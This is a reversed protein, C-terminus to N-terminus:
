LRIVKHQHAAEKVALAIELVKIAERVPCISKEQKEILKLFHKMEDVYMQNNDIKEWKIRHWCNEAAVYWEIFHNQYNWRITGTEGIIELSADYTRRIYDLHISGISGKTFKLLIEAIDETDIELHSLHDAMAIVESVEGFLWQMYDIEHIRDLIVGGGLKKQASYTHRYDEWPHWDPLFQGFQARSYIIKGIIEKSLLSHIKMLGPHFRFNCGVLTLLKKKDILDLLQPLGESKDSIPKEIFLHCGAEAACLAYKLHISTPTCILAAHYNEKELAKDLDNILTYKNERCINALLEKNVDYLSIKAGLNALNKAHRQGISGSGIILVNPGSAQLPSPSVMAIQPTM